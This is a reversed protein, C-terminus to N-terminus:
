TGVQLAVLYRSVMNYTAVTAVLDHLGDIGFEVEVQEVLKQDCEVEKTMSTTLALMLRHRDNLSDLKGNKLEAMISKSIGAHIALPAHQEWEYEARNLVAVWCITLEREADSLSTKTRVAGLLGNWGAAVDPNHLLMRDLDLLTGGRRDRIADATSGEIDGPVYPIRPM